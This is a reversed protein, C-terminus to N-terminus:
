TISHYMPLVWMRACICTRPLGVFCVLGMRFCGVALLVGSGCATFWEWAPGSWGAFDVGGGYMGMYTYVGKHLIYYLQFPM